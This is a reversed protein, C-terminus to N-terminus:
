VLRLRRYGLWVMFGTLLGLVWYPIPVAIFPVYIGSGGLIAVAVPDRLEGDDPDLDLSGNDTLTYSVTNGTITAGAIQAGSVGSDDAKIAVTGEPLADGQVTIVVPVATGPDCGSISFNLLKDRVLTVGSVGADPQTSVSTLSCGSGTPPDITIEYPEKTDSTIQLDATATASQAIFAGATDPKLAGAGALRTLSSGADVTLPVTAATSGGAALAAVPLTCATATCTAGTPVTAVSTDKPLPVVLTGANLLASGENAVKFTLAIDKGSVFNEPDFTATLVPDAENAVRLTILNSTDSVSAGGETTGALSAQTQIVSDNAGATLKATYTTTADSAALTTIAPWVVDDGSAAGSDSASAFSATDTPLTLVM